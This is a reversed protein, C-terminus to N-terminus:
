FRANMTEFGMSLEALSGSQEQIPHLKAKGDLQKNPQGWIAQGTLRVSAREPVKLPSALM